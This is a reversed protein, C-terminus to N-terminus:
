PAAPTPKLQSSDNIETVILVLLKTTETPNLVAEILFTRTNWWVYMGATIPAATRPHRMVIWHSTQSTFQGAALQQSGTWAEISAWCTRVVAWQSPDQSVGGMADQSGSPQVIQIRHRLEGAEISTPLRRM